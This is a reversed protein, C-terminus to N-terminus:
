GQLEVNWYAESVFKGWSEIRQSSKSYLPRWRPKTPKKRLLMNAEEPTRDAKRKNCHMCALVCNEWSSGGGRSRPMVHDITLEDTGPRDGCYQCMFHDRKFVNRRSFSVAVSPVRDYKCLSVVEPVRFQISVGQIFAEEAAPQLLSWDDWDYTQYDDPDVVRATGAYIM